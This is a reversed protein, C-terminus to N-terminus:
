AAQSKGIYEYAGLTRDGFYSPCCVIRERRTPCPTPPRRVIELSHGMSSGPSYDTSRTRATGELNRQSNRRCTQCRRHAESGGPHRGGCRNLRESPRAGPEDDTITRRPARAILGCTPLPRARKKSAKKSRPNQRM